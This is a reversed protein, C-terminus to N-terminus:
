KHTSVKLQWTYIRLNDYIKKIDGSHSRIEATRRKKKFDSIEIGKYKIREQILDFIDVPELVKRMILTDFLDFSIADYGDILRKM